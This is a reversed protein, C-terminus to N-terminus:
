PEFPGLPNLSRARALAREREAGEAVRGLELWLRWDHADRALGDRAAAAAAAADGALAHAQAAVLWPEAAWPEVQAAREARAAAAAPREERLAQRAGDLAVAGALTVASVALLVLAPVASAAHLVDHRLFAFDTEGGDLLLAAGILIGAAAVGALEWHWDLALAAVFAAYAGVLLPRRRGRLAAVFPLALAAALLALGVIGQEGVLEVYLGHADRASLPAERGELWLQWFTGAGAGGLPREGAADLAVPWYREREHGGFSLVAAVAVAALAVGGAWRLRGGAAVATGALGVALAGFAGVSGALVLVLLHVPLAAAAAVRALTQTAAVCLGLALLAGVAALLALSNDYGVPWAAVGVLREDYGGRARHVLNALGVATAAALVAGAVVIGEGRRFAAVAVLAVAVVLAARQAEAISSPASRSWLATALTWGGSAALLAVWAVASGGSPQEARRRRWALAALAGAAAVIGAWGWARAAYGGGDWLLAALAAALAVGRVPLLGPLV